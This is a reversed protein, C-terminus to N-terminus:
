PEVAYLIENEKIVIVDIFVGPEKEINSKTWGFRPYKVMDGVAVTMTYDPRGNGIAYVIGSLPDTQSSDPIVFDGIQTLPEDPIIVVQIGVPKLKKITM